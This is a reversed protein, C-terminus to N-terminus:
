ASKFLYNGVFGFIAGAAAAIGSWWHLKNEAKNLRKEHGDIRGELRVNTQTSADIKSEVNGMSRQLDALQDSIFNMDSM